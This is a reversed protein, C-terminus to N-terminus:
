LYRSMEIKIQTWTLNYDNKLIVWSPFSTLLPIKTMKFNNKYLYQETTDSHTSVYFRFIQAYLLFLSCLSFKYTKQGTSLFSASRCFICLKISYILAALASNLLGFFLCRSESFLTFNSKEGGIKNKSINSVLLASQRCYKM